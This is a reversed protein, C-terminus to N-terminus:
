GGSMLPEFYNYVALLSRGLYLIYNIKEKVWSLLSRFGGVPPQAVSLARRLGTVFTIGRMTNLEIKAIVRAIARSAMSKPRYRDIPALMAAKLLAREMSDLIRWYIGLRKARRVEKIIINKDIHGPALLKKAIEEVVDDIEGAGPRSLKRVERGLLITLLFRPM